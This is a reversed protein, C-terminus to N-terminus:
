QRTYRRKKASIRLVYGIMHVRSHVRIHSPARAASISNATFYFFYINSQM